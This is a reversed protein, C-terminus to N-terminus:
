SKVQAKIEPYSIGLHSAHYVCAGDKIILAQPSEHRVNFEEAIKSSVPRYSLLDLFYPKIGKMEESKWSGELRSLALASTPCRTSHKFVLVAEKRSLEKIEQVQAEDKLQLWDM